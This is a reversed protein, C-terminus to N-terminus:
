SRGFRLPGAAHSALYVLMRRRHQLEAPTLRRQEDLPSRRAPMGPGAAPITADPAPTAAAARRRALVFCV